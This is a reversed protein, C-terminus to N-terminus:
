GRWIGTAGRGAVPSLVPSCQMLAEPTKAAGWATSSAHWLSSSLTVGKIGGASTRTRARGRERWSPSTRQWSVGFASSLLRNYDSTRLGRVLSRALSTGAVNSPLLAQDGRNGRGMSLSGPKGADELREGAWRYKGYM